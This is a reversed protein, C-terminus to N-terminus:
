SISERQRDTQSAGDQRHWDQRLCGHRAVIWDFLQLVFDSIYLLVMLGFDSIYLLVILGFNSLDLLLVVGFDAIQLSLEVIQLRRL